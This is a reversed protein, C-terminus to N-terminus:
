AILSVDSIAKSDRVAIQVHGRRTIASGPFAPEGEAFSSRISTVHRGAEELVGALFNLVARDLRHAAGGQQPMPKGLRRSMLAYEDYANALAQEWGIDLLDICGDLLITASLVAADTQFRIEAWERARAPADQWFYIGDGLWDPQSSSQWFGDALISRSRETSTGHFGRASLPPANSSLPEM